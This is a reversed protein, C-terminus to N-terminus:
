DVTATTAKVSDPLLPELQRLTKKLSGRGRAVVELAARGLYLAYEPERWIRDVGAAIQRANNVTILAGASNLANAMEQQHYLYPGALVAKGCAAPELLNHGGIDVLSGGVLAVSAAAYCAQLSGIRDVLVVQTGHEIAEDFGKRTLGMQKILAQIEGSREPHRPVLILLADPHHQLLQCHADLVMAEEVPRTSGAVWVRRAGWLARLQRAQQGLDDPLRLDFKLNGTVRAKNEALGLRVLREADDHSQCLALHVAALTDAFLRRFRLSRTLGRASLRANVLVIAIGAQRAQHFLEPWLETEAILGLSPKIGSLWRRTAGITDAPALRHDVQNGFIRMAQRAGSLTFTSVVVRRDPYRAVLELVLANVANVEGVSAAHVWVPGAGASQVHGRRENRRGQMSADGKAPRQLRWLVIPATLIALLRYLFLM